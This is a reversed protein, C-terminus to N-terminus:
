CKIIYSDFKNLDNEQFTYGAALIVDPILHEPITLATSSSSHLSCVIQFGAKFDMKKEQTMKLLNRRM